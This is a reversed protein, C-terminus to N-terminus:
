QGADCCPQTRITYLHHLKLGQVEDPILLDTVYLCPLIVSLFICKLNQILFFFRMSERSNGMGPRQCTRSIAGIMLDGKEQWQKGKMRYGGGLSSERNGRGNLERSSEM